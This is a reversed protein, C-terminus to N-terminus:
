FMLLGSLYCVDYSSMECSSMMLYNVGGVLLLYSLITLYFYWFVLM